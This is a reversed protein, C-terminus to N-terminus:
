IVSIKCYKSGLFTIIKNDDIQYIAKVPHACNIGILESYAGRQEEAPQVNLEACFHKYPSDRSGAGALLAACDWLNSSLWSKRM